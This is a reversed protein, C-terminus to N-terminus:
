MQKNEMAGKGESGCASCMSGKCPKCKHMMVMMVASLGILAHIIRELSTADGVLGEILDVHFFGHIGLNLAGVLVLAWAIKHVSCMNKMM